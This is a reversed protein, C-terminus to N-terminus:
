SAMEMDIKELIAKPSTILARLGMEKPSLGLALGMLQTTYLVPMPRLAGIKQAAKQGLDLNMQCMQCAVAM